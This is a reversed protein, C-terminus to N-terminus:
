PAQPKYRVREDFVVHDVAVALVPDVAIAYLIRENLIVQDVVILIITDAEVLAISCSRAQVIHDHVIRDVRTSGCSRISRNTNEIAARTVGDKVVDQEIATAIDIADSCVANAPGRAIVVDDR